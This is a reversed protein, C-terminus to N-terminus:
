IQLTIVLKDLPESQKEDEHARIRALLKQHEMDMQEYNMNKLDPPLISATSLPSDTGLYAVQLWGNDALTVVLGELDGFKAVNVYIPAVLTKATWM